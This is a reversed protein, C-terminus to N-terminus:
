NRNGTAAQSIKIAIECLREVGGMRSAEADRVPACHSPPTALDLGGVSLPEAESRAAVDQM